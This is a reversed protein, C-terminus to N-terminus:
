IAIQLDDNTPAERAIWCLNVPIGMPIEEMLEIPFDRDSRKPSKGLWTQHSSPLFVMM